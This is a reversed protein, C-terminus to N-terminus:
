GYFVLEVSSGFLCVGPDGLEGADSFDALQPRLYGTLSRFGDTYKKDTYGCIRSLSGPVSQPRRTWGGDTYLSFNGSLRLASLLASRFLGSFWDSSLNLDFCPAESKSSAVTSATEGDGTFIIQTGLGYWYLAELRIEEEDGAYWYRVTRSGEEAGAEESGRCYGQVLGFGLDISVRDTDGIFGIQSYGAAAIAYGTLFGCGLSDFCVCGVTALGPRDVSSSVYLQRMEGYEKVSGDAERGYVVVAKAGLEAAKEVADAVSVATDAATLLRLSLGYASATEKVCDVCDGYVPGDAADGATIFVLDATEKEGCGPLLLILSLIIIM